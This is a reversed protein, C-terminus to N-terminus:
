VHFFHSPNAELFFSPFIETTGGYAVTHPPPALTANGAPRRPRTAQEGAPAYINIGAGALLWVGRAPGAQVSDMREDPMQVHLMVLGVLRQACSQSGAGLDAHQRPQMAGTQPKAPCGTM